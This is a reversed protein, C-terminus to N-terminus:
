CYFTYFNEKYIKNRNKTSYKMILKDLRNIKNKM